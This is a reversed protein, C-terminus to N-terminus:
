KKKLPNPIIMLPVKSHRLMHECVSGVLFEYIRSRGHSGLVVLDISLKEVESEITSNIQGQILLTECNIGEGILKEKYAQLKNHEKYLVDARHDRIYKPGVDYGVFEPDPTAVHVLWCKAGYFSALEGARKVIDNSICSFDVLALINKIM